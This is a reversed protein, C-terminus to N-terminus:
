DGTGGGTHCDTCASRKWLKAIYKPHKYEQAGTLEPEGEGSGQAVFDHCTACADSIPDDDKNVHNGAHCRFCGKSYTHGINDPHVDWRARMGPFFNRRFIGQVEEISRDLPERREAVVEPYERQYFGLLEKGIATTGQEQDKYAPSALVKLAERKFYPLEADVIGKAMAENLTLQPTKFQHVSRNHCDICDMKRVPFRQLLEEESLENDEDMYVVESGGSNVLKVWPINQRQEDTAIYYVTNPENVHWHISPSAGAPDPHRPDGGGVHMLLTSRFRSNKEDPLFYTYDKVIRGIFKEPWHCQECIDKAPRLHKLPTSIPRSFEGTVIAKLQAIGRLKDRAYYGAGPGTHCDACAVKAHASFQHAEFEPQMVEHCVIGCFERQGTFEHARYAGYTSMLGFVTAFLMAGAVLQRHRQTGLDIQPAYADGLRQRRRYALWSGFVLLALGLVIVVPMVAFTVISLYVNTHSRQFDILFLFFAVFLGLVAIAIGALSVWNWLARFGDFVSIAEQKASM